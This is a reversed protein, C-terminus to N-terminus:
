SPNRDLVGLLRNRRLQEVYDAVPVDGFDAEIMLAVETWGTAISCPNNGILSRVHEWTTDREAAGSTVRWTDNPRSSGPIADVHLAVHTVGQHRWRLVSGVPPVRSHFRDETVRTM